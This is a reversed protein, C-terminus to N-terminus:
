IQQGYTRLPRIRISIREANPRRSLWEEVAEPGRYRAILRRRLEIDAAEVLATGKITLYRTGAEITVTVTPNQRLNRAKISKAQASVRLENGERLFWVVTQQITGDPNLTGIVAYHLDDLFTCQAPTFEM